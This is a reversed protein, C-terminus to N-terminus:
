TVLTMRDYKPLCSHENYSNMTALVKQGRRWLLIEYIWFGVQLLREVLPTISVDIVVSPFDLSRKPAAPFELSQKRASGTLRGGSGPSSDVVPPEAAASVDVALSCYYVGSREGPIDGEFSVRASGRRVWSPNELTESYRGSIVDNTAAVAAINGYNGTAAMSTKAAKMGQNQPKKTSATWSLSRNQTSSLPSGGPLAHGGSRLTSVGPAAAQARRSPKWFTVLTVLFAWIWSGTRAWWGPKERARCM